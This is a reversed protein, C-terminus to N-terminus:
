EYVIATTDYRAESVVICGALLLVSLVSLLGHWKM